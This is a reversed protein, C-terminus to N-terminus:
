VLPARRRKKWLEPILCAQRRDLRSCLRAFILRNSLIVSKRAASELAAEQM